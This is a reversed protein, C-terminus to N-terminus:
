ENINRDQQERGNGAGLHRLRSPAHGYRRVHRDREGYASLLGLAQRRDRREGRERLLIEADAGPIRWFALNEVALM